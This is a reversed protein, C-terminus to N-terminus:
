RSAGFSVRLDTEGVRVIDGPELRHRGTIPVGNVATGNRSGLDHILVRGNVLALECHRSSIEDDDLLVLDCGAKRGIVARDGLAVEHRSGAGKGRTIFFTLCLGSRAPAPAKAPLVPPEVLPPPLPEPPPLADPEALPLPPADTRRRFAVLALGGLLVAGALYVWIPM